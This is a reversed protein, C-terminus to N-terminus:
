LYYYLVEAVQFFFICLLDLALLLTLVMYTNINYSYGDFRIHEPLDSVELYRNLELNKFLNNGFDLM